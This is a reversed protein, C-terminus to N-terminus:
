DYLAPLPLEESRKHSKNLRSDNAPSCGAPLLLVRGVNRWRGSVITQIRSFSTYKKPFLPRLDGWTLEFAAPSEPLKLIANRLLRWRRTLDKQGVGHRPMVTRPKIWLLFPRIPVPKELLETFFSKFLHNLMRGTLHTFPNVQPIEGFFGILDFILELIPAPLRNIHRVNELIEPLLWRYYALEDNVPPHLLLILASERINEGPYECLELLEKLEKRAPLKHQEFKLRINKLVQIPNTM